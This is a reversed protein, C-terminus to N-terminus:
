WMFVFYLYFWDCVTPELAASFGQLYFSPLLLPLRPPMIAFYIGMNYFCPSQLWGRNETQERYIEDGRFYYVTEDGENLIESDCCISIVDIIVVQEEDAYFSFLDFLADYYGDPYNDRDFQIFLNKLDAVDSIQAQYPYIAM